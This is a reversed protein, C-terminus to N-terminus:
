RFAAQRNLADVIQIREKECSVATAMLSGLVAHALDMKDSDTFQLILERQLMIRDHTDSIRHECLALDDETYHRM